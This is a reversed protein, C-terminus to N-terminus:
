VGRSNMGTYGGKKLQRQYEDILWLQTNVLRRLLDNQERLNKVEANLQWNEAELRQYFEERSLEQPQEQNQIEEEKMELKEEPNRPM